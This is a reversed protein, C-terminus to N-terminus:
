AVSADIIQVAKPIFSDMLTRAALSLLERALADVYGLERFGTATLDPASCDDASDSGRM